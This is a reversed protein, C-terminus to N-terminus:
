KGAKAKAAAITTLLDNYQVNLAESAIANTNQKSEIIAVSVASQLLDYKMSVSRLDNTPVQGLIVLQAYADYASKAGQSVTAISNLTIRSQPSTCGQTLLLAAPGAMSGAIFVVALLSIAKKKIPKIQM